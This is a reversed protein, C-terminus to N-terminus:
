VAADEVARQSSGDHEIQAFGLDVSMARSFILVEVQVREKEEDVGVVVGKMTEFPGQSIRVCEGPRFLAAHKASKEATSVKEFISEMEFETLPEPCDRNKADIVNQNRLALRVLDWGQEFYDFELFIYRNFVIRDVGVRKGRVIRFRREKPILIRGFRERVDDPQAALITRLEDAVKDEYQSRVFLVYWRM